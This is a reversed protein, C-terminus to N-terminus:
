AHVGSFGHVCLPPVLVFFSDRVEFTKQNLTFKGYPPTVDKFFAAEYHLHLHRPYGGNPRGGGALYITSSVNIESPNEGAQFMEQYIM